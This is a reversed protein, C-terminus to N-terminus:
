CYVLFQPVTVKAIVRANRLLRKQPIWPCLIVAQKKNTTAAQTMVHYYLARFNSFIELTRTTSISIRFTATLASHFKDWRRILLPEDFHYTQLNSTIAAGKLEWTMSNFFGAVAVDSVTSNRPLAIATSRSFIVLNQTTHLVHVM